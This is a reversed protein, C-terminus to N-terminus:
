EDISIPYYRGIDGGHDRMFRYAAQSVITLQRTGYGGGLWECSLNFDLANNMSAASYHIDDPLSLGIRGCPCPPVGAIPFDTTNSMLPLTNTVFLQKWGPQIGVKKSRIVPWFDVGRLGADSILGAIRDSVVNEYIWHVTFWERRKPFKNLRLPRDQLAGNGCLTCAVSTDYSVKRYGNEPKPFGLLDWPSFHLFSASELEADTFVPARNEEFRIGHKQLVDLLESYETSDVFCGARYFKHYLLKVLVGRSVLQAAVEPESEFDVSTHVRM